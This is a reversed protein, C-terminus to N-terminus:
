GIPTPVLQLHRASEGYCRIRDLLQEIDGIIRAEPYDDETVGLQRLSVGMARALVSAEAFTPKRGSEIRVITYRPIPYGLRVTEEALRTQSWERMFDRVYRIRQGIQDPLPLAAAAMADEKSRQVSAGEQM